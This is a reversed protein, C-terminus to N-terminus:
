NAEFDESLAGVTLTYTEGKKMVPLSLIIADFAQEPIYSLLVTGKEDTLTIECGETQRGVSVSIVGQESDSFTQAMGLAGTGIFTGGLIVGSTDYDLIATDGRTPGCVTTYGGTVTLTGNVDIGDGEARITLRGGSITISGTSSASPMGPRMGGFGDTGFHGGMGSGDTGGAANLGDDACTLRIEGGAIVIDTAELGEYCETVQISGATIQLAEDAHIGDDGTQITLTGGNVTMGKNSHIADDASDVTLTGRNILIGSEAKVGKASVTDTTDSARMGRDTHIKTANESGGGSLIEYSGGEMQVTSSASIGDGASELHFTGGSLYVFGLAEDESNEAHIGDKGSRATLAANDIRISDNADLGHGATELHYTGSTITLDDKVVIGHGEPSQVRLSGAGNLTLDAKSFLAGDINDSGIAVFGNQNALLNETDEALSVFVKDAEAVYLAASTASTISVGNLILRPKAKEDSTAVVLSGNNLTGSILYTAEETVTVTGGSIRVSDSSSEATNGKLTIRVCRSEDFGVEYDKASFMEENTRQYPETIPAASEASGTDVTIPEEKGCGSFLLSLVVGFVATQLMYKKIKM